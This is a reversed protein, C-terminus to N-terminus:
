PKITDTINGCTLMAKGYYPNRIAPENSLWYWKKMPCYQQYVPEASLKITTALLSLNTSLSAFGERQKSINKEAAITKGDMRLKDLTQSIAPSKSAASDPIVFGDIAKVFESAHEAAAIANSSVLADKLEYYSNMVPSQANLCYTTTVFVLITILFSKM